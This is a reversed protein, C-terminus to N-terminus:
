LISHSRDSECWRAVWDLWKTPLAQHCALIAEMSNQIGQHLACPGCQYWHCFFQQNFILTTTQFSTRLTKQRNRSNQSFKSRTLTKQMWTFIILKHSLHRPLNSRCTKCHEPLPCNSSNQCAIFCEICTVCNSWKILLHCSRHHINMSTTLHKSPCRKKWYFALLVLLNCPDRHIKVRM